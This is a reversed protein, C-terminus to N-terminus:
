KDKRFDYLEESSDDSWAEDLMTFPQFSIALGCKICVNKLMVSCEHCYPLGCGSCLVFDPDELADCIICNRKGCSLHQLCGFVGPCLLRLRLVINLNDQVHRAALNQEANHRLIEFLSLRNRLLSNYLFLVRQKERKDYFYSCIVRRLRLFTTSQYILLVIALYLLMLRYYFRQPLAHANPLCEENSLSTSVREHMNFNRMTTRLLRAMLGTGNIHFRIEHEGEQQYTILSRQRIIQLLGVVMRDLLLFLGATIVELSLQLLHYMATLSEKATRSCVHAVDVYNAREHSHLPLISRKENAKREADIHKFYDTIYFNDFEVNGRYQFYYGISAYIVRLLFLCLFKELIQMTTTFIRRRRNFDKMFAESTQQATLLQGKVTENRLEYSIEIDASADFLDRETRLMDVYAQGFNQPVVESADCIKDQSGFPNLRCIIDVRYPWCIAAALFDPFNTSCKQYGKRFVEQCVRTGSRLQQKCRHQMNRLFNERVADASPLESQPATTHDEDHSEQEVAYKLEGLVQELERFTNRIEAIDGRMHQLTSTFPRAMLDFRTKTLNYTLVTTCAFVRAVEGANSALNDIPGAIVFAFAIARLYSRGSKGVLAVFMLLTVARVSRILMFALGNLLVFVEFVPVHVPLPALWRGLNFNLAVLGWLLYALFLGVLLRAVYRVPKLWPEDESEQGYLLCYLPRCALRGIAQRISKTLFHFM